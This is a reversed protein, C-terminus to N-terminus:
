SNEEILAKFKEEATQMDEELITQTASLFGQNRISKAVKDRVKELGKALAVSYERNAAKPLLRMISQTQPIYTRLLLDRIEYIYRTLDRMYGNREEETIPPLTKGEEALLYVGVYLKYLRDYIEINTRELERNSEGRHRLYNDLFVASLSTLLGIAGGIAVGILVISSDSM